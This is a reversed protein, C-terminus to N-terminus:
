GAVSVAAVSQSVTMASGYEADTVVAYISYSAGSELGTITFPSVPDAGADHRSIPSKVGPEEDKRTFISVHCGAEPPLFSCAIEGSSSGPAATFNVLIEEGMGKCLELPEGARRHPINEGIFANYGSVNEDDGCNDWSDKVIGTIFKWDYVVTKFADQVEKQGVTATRDQKKYVMMYSSGNRTVLVADEMRGSGEKIYSPLKIRAM